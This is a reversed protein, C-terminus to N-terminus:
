WTVRGDGKIDIKDGLYTPKIKFICQVFDKERAFFERVERREDGNYPKEIASVGNVEMGMRKAIYIARGEHYKQTVVLLRKVGFVAQARYISEYTSFGAHDQFLDEAPVGLKLCYDKMVKVEDYNVKGNDGSLLLKPAAGVRYLEIGRDLRDQLIKTPTGNSYVGAGLVIICDYNGDRADDVTILSRDGDLKVFVSIAVIVVIIILILKLIRKFVKFMTLIKDSLNM